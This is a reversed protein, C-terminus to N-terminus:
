VYCWTRNENLHICVQIKILKSCLNYNKDGGYRTDRAIDKNYKSTFIIYLCANNTITILNNFFNKVIKMQLNQSSETNEKM